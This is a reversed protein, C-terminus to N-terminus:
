NLSKKLRNCLHGKCNFINLRNVKWAASMIEFCLLRYTQVPQSNICFARGCEDSKTM